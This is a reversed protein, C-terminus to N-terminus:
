KLECAFIKPYLYADVSTILKLDLTKVIKFRSQLIIKEWLECQSTYVVLKGKSNLAEQCYEVFCRYLKDLDEDKSIVMGFPLASTIADFKGLDPKNFIDEEKLQIREILGAKKINRVAMSLYKKNNDFGILRKLNQYCQGAEILLTASGSFVNLYSEANELNCLSNIAYTITPDTAGGMNEVKYDRVSLPRLTIQIGVEWTKGINIIHIKLDAEEKEAFKYTEQMYEAISRVKPSDSGACTIKFTRFVNKNGDIIIDILNSLISKHKSIHLPNYKFHQAVLYARAVSRLHKIEAFDQMFDLYLSDEGEGIVRLTPYRDIEKLVIEKLGAVFALKIKLKPTNM